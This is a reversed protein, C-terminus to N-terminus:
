WDDGDMSGLARAQGTLDDGLAAGTRRNGYDFALYLPM